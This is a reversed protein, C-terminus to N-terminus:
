FDSKMLKVGPRINIFDFPTEQEVHIYDRTKLVLSEFFLRSAEKRTKRALLNEMVLGRKAHAVEQRFLTQFYNAVARTRSSWGSNELLQSEEPDIMNEDEALEDDDDVNLFDTDHPAPTMGEFDFQDDIVTSDLLTFEADKRSQADCTGTNEENILSAHGNDALSHIFDAKPESSSWISAEEINCEVQGDQVKDNSFKSIEDASTSCNRLVPEDFDGAVAVATVLEVDADNGTSCYETDIGADFTAGCKQDETFGEEITHSEIEDIKIADVGNGILGDGKPSDEEANLINPSPCLADVHLSEHIDVGKDMFDSKKVSDASANVPNEPFSSTLDQSNVESVILHNAADGDAIREGEVEMETMKVSHEHQSKLVESDVSPYDGIGEGQQNETHRLTEFAQKEPEDRIILPEVAGGMETDLDPKDFSDIGSAAIPHTTGEDHESIKTRSLDYAEKHMYFLDTSVGTHIPENFIEDGVFNRQIVSIEPLTCPAKRRVRRLDETNILQQRIADGHLVMTDDLLVKRKYASARQATKQRKSLTVETAAPSPKMKLVSSRRGVLISSLLDDDDPISEVTRKSFDLGFSESNIQMTVTSETLSRKRGSLHGVGAGLGSEPSEKDPTSEELFKSAEDIVADRVSLLKEPPPLASAASNMIESQDNLAVDKLQGDLDGHDQIKQCLSPEAIHNADLASEVIAAAPFENEGRVYSVGQDSMNSDCFQRDHMHNQQIIDPLASNKSNPNKIDDRVDHEVDPSAKELSCAKEVNGSDDNTDNKEPEHPIPSLASTGVVEDPRTDAESSKTDARSNVCGGRDKISGVANDVGGVRDDNGERNAQTVEMESVLLGNEEAAMGEIAISEAVHDDSVVTDKISHLNAEGVLGPTSPAEAYGIFESNTDQAEGQHGICNELQEKLIRDDDDDGEFPVMSETHGLPHVETDGDFMPAAVKEVLSDQDLDFSIQCTDGDGFREDLGFQSTPYVVGEMTDQLTIQERASVHHDVYNGQLIENDPLEFDDLDFTEPLTISHYPATSEEPPLDVATSRFAQKVKLLAESCDDFLYGVKRSYIRVVGLLLHSSLRLAIPVEPFLISDVSVGIDTDAVQNKRLKRELHAAIWITGLPGKKALIFQSYFM